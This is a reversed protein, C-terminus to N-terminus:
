ARHRCPWPSFLPSGSSRPSSMPRATAAGHVPRGWTFASRVASCHSPSGPAPSRPCSELNSATTVLRSRHSSPLGGEAGDDEPPDDKPPDDKPPDDKPPDDNSGDASG